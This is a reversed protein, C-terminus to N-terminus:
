TRKAMEIREPAAPEVNAIRVHHVGDITVSPEYEEGLTERVWVAFDEITSM